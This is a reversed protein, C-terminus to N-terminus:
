EEVSMARNLYGRLPQMAEFTAVLEEMYNDAVVEEPEFNRAVAFSKHRLLEIHPHDQSYGKPATKLKGTDILEGFYKKFKPAEIIAQLREGDYDIAARIRKLYDSPPKYFGGAAMNEALGVHVYFSPKGKGDELDAGFNDKYTPANPHFLLNNNIRTMASRPPKPLFGPDVEVLRRNLEELFAIFDDRLAHYRKRNADMWEKHNNQQLEHLFKYLENFNMTTANLM